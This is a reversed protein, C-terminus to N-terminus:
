YKNMSSYRKMYVYISIYLVKWLQNHINFVDTVISMYPIYGIYKILIKLFITSEYSHM